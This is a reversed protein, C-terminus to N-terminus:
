PAGADTVVAGAVCTLGTAYVQFNGTRRDEFAVTAGGSASFAVGPNLSDSPGSTVRQEPSLTNLNSDLMKSYIAYPGNQEEAWVLLLRNGLALLAESRAFSAPATVTRDAVLVTGDPSVAAGRIAPGPAAGQEDWVVVYRDGNWAIASSAADETGLIVPTGLKTLDPSVTRFALRRGTDGLENYVLGLETVGKAIRPSDAVSDNPSLSVNAGILKGDIDVRLGFIVGKGEGERQDDWVVAFEPSDWVVDPRLSFRPADTVRLDSSLKKGTGDIRNFDIEFIKTAGTKGCSM